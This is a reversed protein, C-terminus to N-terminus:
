PTELAQRGAETIKIRVVNVRQVRGAQTTSATAFGDHILGDIVKRSFGRARLVMDTHGDPARALLALARRRSIQPM